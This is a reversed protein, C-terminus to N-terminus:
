PSRKTLVNNDIAGFTLSIDFIHVDNRKRRPNIYSFVLSSRQDDGVM